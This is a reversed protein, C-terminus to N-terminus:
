KVNKELLDLKAMIDDISYNNGAVLEHVDTKGLVFDSVSKRAKDFMQQYTGLYRMTVRQDSHNLLGQIKTISNMDISSKDVCAAINAFSKRMTHSGIVIPLELAKGADSLIKWGYEEYMKGKTKNSRFLYDDLSFKWNISDLYRAVADVVSETILCNNAKNTKQEILVIRERFHKDETLLDRLKLSLLDSIRLGLSVGVTWLMWDRIKNNSLFYNQISVFDEYSRIPDAPRSKRKGDSKFESYVETERAKEMEVKTRRKRKLPSQLEKIKIELEDNKREADYRTKREIALEERLISIESELRIIKEEDTEYLSKFRESIDNLVLTTEANTM